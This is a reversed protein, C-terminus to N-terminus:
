AASEPVVRRIALLSRLRSLDNRTVGGIVFLLAVYSLTTLIPCLPVGTSRTAFLIGYAGAGAAVPKLAERLVSLGLHWGFSVLLLAHAAVEALLNGLAAGRIGLSRVTLACIALNVFAGLFTSQVLLRNRRSAVCLEDWNHCIAIIVGAWVLINFASTAGDFARGFILRIAWRSLSSAILGSGISVVATARVSNSLLSRASELSVSWAEMLAPAMATFYLWIPYYFVQSLRTAAVYLGVDAESRYYGVILNNNLAYMTVALSVACLPLAQRLLYANERASLVPWAHYGERRLLRMGLIVLAAASIAAIGAVWILDKERRVLVITLGLTLFAATIQLATNLHMKQLSRFVWEVSLAQIPLTLLYVRFLNKSAESYPLFRATILGVPILALAIALRLGLTASIVRQLKQPHQAGERVAVTGLGLDSLLNFYVTISQAIGAIGFGSASVCRALVANTALGAIRSVAAGITLSGFNWFISRARSAPEFKIAVQYSEDYVTTPASIYGM